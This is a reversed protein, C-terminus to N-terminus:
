RCPFTRLYDDCGKSILRTTSIENCISVWLLVSDSAPTDVMLNGKVDKGPLSSPPLLFASLLVTVLGIKNATWFPPSLREPRKQGRGEMKGVVVKGGLV